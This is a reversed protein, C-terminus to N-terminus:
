TIEFSSCGSLIHIQRDGCSAQATYDHHTKIVNPHLHGQTKFPGKKRDGKEAYPMREFLAAARSNTAELVIIGEAKAHGREDIDAILWHCTIQETAYGSLHRPTIM